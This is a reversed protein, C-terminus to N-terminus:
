RMTEGTVFFVTISIVVYLLLGITGWIRDEKTENQYRKLIKDLNRFLYFYNPILIIAFSLIGDIVPHQFNLKLNYYHNVLDYMASINFMQLIIILVMANLAPTTNTKVKTLAKYIRYYYYKM